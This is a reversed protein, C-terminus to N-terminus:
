LLLGVILGLMSSSVGVLVGHLTHKAHTIM